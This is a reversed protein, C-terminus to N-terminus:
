KMMDANIAELAELGPQLDDQTLESLPIDCLNL